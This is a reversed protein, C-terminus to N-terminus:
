RRTPAARDINDRHAFSAPRPRNQTAAVLLIAAACDLVFQGGFELFRSWRDWVTVPDPDGALIASAQAFGLMLQTGTTIAELCLLSPIGILVRLAWQRKTAAPWALLLTWFVVPTEVVEGVQVHGIVRAARNPSDMTRRVHGQMQVEATLRSKGPKVAVSDIEWPHGTAILEDFDAYYPVVLRAYPEAFAVGIALAAVAALGWRIESRM